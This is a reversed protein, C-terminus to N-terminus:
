LVNILSYILCGILLVQIIWYFSIYLNKTRPKFLIEGLATYAIPRRIRFCYAPTDKLGSISEVTQILDPAKSEADGFLSIHVMKYCEQAYYIHRNFTNNWRATLLISLFGALVLALYLLAALKSGLSNAFALAGAALALFISNFTLRENEVHRAHALNEKMCEALFSVQAENLKEGALRRWISDAYIRADSAAQKEDHRKRFKEM